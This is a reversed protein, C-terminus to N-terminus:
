ILVFKLKKENNQIQKKRKNKTEKAASAPM